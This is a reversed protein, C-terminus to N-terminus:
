FLVRSGSRHTLKKAFYYDCNILIESSLFGAWVYTPVRFPICSYADSQDLNRSVPLRGLPRRLSKEKLPHCLSNHDPFSITQLEISVKSQPLQSNETGALNSLSYFTSAYPITAM